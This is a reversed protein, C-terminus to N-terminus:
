SMDSRPWTLTMPSIDETDLLNMLKEASYDESLLLELIRGANKSFCVAYTANFETDTM